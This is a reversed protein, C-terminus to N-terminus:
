GGFPRTSGIVGDPLVQAVRSWLWSGTTRQVEAQIDLAQGHGGAIAFLSAGSGSLLVGLAGAAKLRQSLMQLLPYKAFVPEELANYLSGAALAVDGKELAFKSKNFTEGSSTLGSRSFRRYVDRTPVSFGPNVVVLWWEVGKPWTTKVPTVREGRGEMCVAKGYVLAPIDSGLRAGLDMLAAMSLGSRWLSNVGKLAVAADASGGGLGGGVPIAKKIRIRVGGKHGTEEQLLRAAKAALNDNSEPLLSKTESPVGDPDCFVEIPGETKEFALEDCISVPVVLSKLEHFGDPRKGIVDLFLNVKAPALLSFTGGGENMARRTIM